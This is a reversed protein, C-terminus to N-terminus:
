RHVTAYGSDDCPSLLERRRRSPIRETPVMQLSPLLIEFWDDGVEFPDLVRDDDTKKVANIRASAFRYNGWEYIM